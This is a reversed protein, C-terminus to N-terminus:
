NLKETLISKVLIDVQILEGSLVKRIQGRQYGISKGEFQSQLTKVKKHCEKSLNAIKKHKENGFDYSPIPLVEFPRRHIDRAGFTGQSQYPKIALNVYESNLVASLFHAEDLNETQFIYTKADAIFGQTLLGEAKLNGASRADIVCATLNTGSTNYLANYLGIPNQSTMLHGYNLREYIGMESGGKRKSTWHLEAKSFWDAAGSDGKELAHKSTVM